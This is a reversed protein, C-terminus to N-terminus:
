AVGVLLKYTRVRISACARNNVIALRNNSLFQVCSKSAFFASFVHGSVLGLGIRARVM